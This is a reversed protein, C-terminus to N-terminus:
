YLRVDEPGVPEAGVMEAARRGLLAHGTSNLHVDDWFLTTEWEEEPCVTRAGVNVCPREVETIGFPDPDAIVMELIAHVDLLTIDVALRRALREMAAALTENHARISASLQRRQDEGLGRGRPTVSVDPVNPVLFHRAGTLTLSTIADALNAVVDRPSSDPFQIYDNSGAWVAYLGEGDPDPNAPLDEWARIQAPLGHLTAFYENAGSTTSGGLAFNLHNGEPEGPTIRLAALLHDVWIPGNSLRGEAYPPSPPLGTAATFNGIDSLSDGFVYLRDHPSSGSVHTHGALCLVGLVALAIHLLNRTM